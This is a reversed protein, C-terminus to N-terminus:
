DNKKVMAKKVGFIREVKDEKLAQLQERM